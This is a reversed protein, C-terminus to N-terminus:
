YFWDVVADRVGATVPLVEHLVESPFAVLTGAAPAIDLPVADDGPDAVGYLRLAGGECRGDGPGAAASSLFLIVSIRRSFEGGTNELRDRHARYFGGPPYRLFGPGETGTLTTGFFRSVEGRVGGLAREVEGVIAPEVDVDYTKRVHEDVVYGNDYIEASGARGRDIASRLRACQAASLFQPRILVGSSVIASV